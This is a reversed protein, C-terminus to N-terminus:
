QCQWLRPNTKMMMMMMM